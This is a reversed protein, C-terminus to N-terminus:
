RCPKQNLGIYRLRTLVPRERNTTVGRLNQALALKQYEKHLLRLAQFLYHRRGTDARNHYEQM